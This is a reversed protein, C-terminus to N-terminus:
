IFRLPVHYRSYTFRVSSIVQTSLVELTSIRIEYQMNYVCDLSPRVIQTMLQHRHLHGPQKPAHGAAQIFRFFLPAKYGKQVLVCLDSNQAAPKM